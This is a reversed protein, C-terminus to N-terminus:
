NCLFRRWSLRAQQESIYYPTRLVVDETVYPPSSVITHYLRMQKGEWTVPRHTIFVKGDSSPYAEEWEQMVFPTGQSSRGSVTKTAIDLKFKVSSGAPVGLRALISYEPASGQEQFPRCTAEVAAELPDDFTAAWSRVQFQRAAQANPPCKSTALNGAQALPSRPHTELYTKRGRPVKEHWFFLTLPAGLATARPGYTCRLMRQGSRSLEGMQSFTVDRAGAVPLAYMRGSANDSPAVVQSTLLGASASGPLTSEKSPLFLAAESIYDLINRAISKKPESRCSGEPGFFPMYKMSTMSAMGMVQLNSGRVAATAPTEPSVQNGAWALVAESGMLASLPHPEEAANLCLVALTGVVYAQAKGEASQDFAAFNRQLAKDLFEPDDGVRSQGFQAQASVHFLLAVGVTLEAFLRGARHGRICNAFGPSCSKM